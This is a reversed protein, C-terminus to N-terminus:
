KDDGDGDGDAISARTSSIPVAEDDAMRIDKMLKDLGAATPSGITADRGSRDRLTQIAPTPTSVLFQGGDSSSRSVALKRFRPELWESPAGIPTVASSELTSAHINSMIEPESTNDVAHDSGVMSFPTDTSMSGAGFRPDREPSTPPSSYPGLFTSPSIVIGTPQYHRWDSDEIMCSFESSYTSAGHSDNSLVITLDDGEIVDDLQTRDACVEGRHSPPPPSCTRFPGVVRRPTKVVRRWTEKLYSVARKTPTALNMTNVTPSPTKEDMQTDRM